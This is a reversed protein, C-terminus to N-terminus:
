DEKRVQRSAFLFFPGPGLQRSLLKCLTKETTGDAERRPEIISPCLTVCKWIALKKFWKKPRGGQRPAEDVYVIWIVYPIILPWFAPM